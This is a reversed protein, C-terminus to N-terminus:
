SLSHPIAQARTRPMPRANHTPKWYAGVLSLCKHFYRSTAQKEMTACARRGLCIIGDTHNDGADTERLALDVHGAELVPKRTWILNLLMLITVGQAGLMAHQYAVDTDVVHPSPIRQREGSVVTKM